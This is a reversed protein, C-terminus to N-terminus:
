MAKQVMETVARAVAVASYPKPFFKDCGSLRVDTESARGSAIISCIAPFERHVERVLALGDMGGPMNVDTVMVAVTQTRLLVLAQNSDAAELVCFGAGELTDRLDMRILFEDDVVLITAPEALHTM